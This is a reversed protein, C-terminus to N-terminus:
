EFRSHGQFNAASAHVRARGAPCIHRVPSMLPGHIETATPLNTVSSLRPTVVGSLVLKSIFWFRVNKRNRQSLDLVNSFSSNNNRKGARAISNQPASSSQVNIKLGFCVVNFPTQSEFLLHRQPIIADYNRVCFQCSQGLKLKTWPQLDLVAIVNM